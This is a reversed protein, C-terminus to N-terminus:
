LRKDFVLLTFGPRVESRGTVRYGAHEYFRRNRPNGEPTDLGWQRVTPYAQELLRLATQGYGKGQHAPLLCICGLWRAVPTQEFTVVVGIIEGNLTLKQVAGDARALLPILFRPNEFIDPGEGYTLKDILFAEHGVAALMAYDEPTAPLLELIEPM